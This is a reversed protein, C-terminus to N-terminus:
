PPQTERQMWKGRQGSVQYPETETESIHLSQTNAETYAVLIAHRLNISNMILCPLMDLHIM